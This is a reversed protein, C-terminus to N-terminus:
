LTFQERYRIYPRVVGNTESADHYFGIVDGAAIGGSTLTTQRLSRGASALTGTVLSIKAYSVTPAASRRLDLTTTAIGGSVTTEVLCGFETLYVDEAITFYGYAGTQILLGTVGVVVYKEAGFRPDSYSSNSTTM